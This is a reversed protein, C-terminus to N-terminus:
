APEGPQPPFPRGPAPDAAYGALYRILDASEDPPLAARTLAGFTEAAQMVDIARTTVTIHLGPGSAWAAADSIGNGFSLLTFPPSLVCRAAALPIVQIILGPWSAAALHRLQDATTGPSGIVQRLASEDLVLRLERREGPPLEQRRQRIADLSRADGTSLGHGAARCAATAYDATQLLGPVAGAAYSRICTAAAELGLYEDAGPPLIDAHGAWWSKEHGQWALRALAERQEPDAVGYQDLM